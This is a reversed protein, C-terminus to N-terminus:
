IPARRFERLRAREKNARLVPNYITITGTEEHTLLPIASEM